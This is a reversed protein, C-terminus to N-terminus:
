SKKGARAPAPPLSNLKEQALGQYPGKISAAETLAARAEAVRRLNLLAFGMRYQNRGYTAPDPKLLPGAAKFKELAAADKKRMIYVQGLSSLALGKELSSQQAWQEDTLNDPKKATGLVTIARTAYAEAKDLQEGKESLYDALLILMSLDNPQKALLKNAADLMKPYDRAMQYASAAIEQAQIAYSSEPFADAFRLLYAARGALDPNRYASFFLSQEIYSLNERVEALKATVDQQWEEASKGEPAPRAKYRRVIAGTKEGYDFLKALDNKEQAARVLNVGNSFADPDLAWLKEGYEFVKDYNKAALFYNVYLDDAVIAMDGTGLEAAFKDILALKEAADAAANIATIAKDEPSGAQIPVNKGIQAPAPLAFSGLLLPALWIAKRM